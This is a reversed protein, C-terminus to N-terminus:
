LNKCTIYYYFLLVIGEIAIASHEILPEIRQFCKTMHMNIICIAYVSIGIVQVVNTVIFFGKKFIIHAEGIAFAHKSCGFQFIIRLIFYTSIRM